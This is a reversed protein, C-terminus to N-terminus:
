LLFMAGMIILLEKDGSDRYMLYLIMLLLLDETELGRLKEPLIGGLADFISPRQPPPAPPPQGHQPQASPPPPRQRGGEEVREVRGTNGQYHNYM